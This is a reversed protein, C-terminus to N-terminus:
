SREYFTREPRIFLWMSGAVLFAAGYLGLLVDWGFWRIVVAGIVPQLWHGTNGVTNIFGAATGAYRGGIDVITAWNAGQGFDNGAGAVCMLLSAEAASRALPLAFMALASIGYGGIPFIARGLWRRGSRRILLDSLAGGAFCAIGGCFLPLGALLESQDFEIGHVDKLYDPMWSVFFSWGFSGFLYLFALAWLSRSVFLQRWVPWPVSHKVSVEAVEGQILHLEEANVAPVAAPDDRFWIFFAVAWVMGLLGVTWFAPRWASAAGFSDFLRLLAGFLLPAFAGGFRALLWLMGGARGRSSAPLWSAQVRAMNPFAGAEGVGFLFRWLLLSVLGTACGTLITFVSWALVIRTLTFRAGFRDGMWGGPIDFLSYALWFASLVLGMGEKGLDLEREIEGMARGICVRDFYTLFALVGLFAMVVYRQRSPNIAV